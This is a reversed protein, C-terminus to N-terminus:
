TQEEIKAAPTYPQPAGIGTDDMTSHCSQESSAPPDTQSEEKELWTHEHNLNQLVRVAQCM